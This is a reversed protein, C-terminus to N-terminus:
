SFCYMVEYSRRLKEKMLNDPQRQHGNFYYTIQASGATYTYITQLDEVKCSELSIGDYVQLLEKTMSVQFGRLM